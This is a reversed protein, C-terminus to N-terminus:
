SRRGPPVYGAVRRRGPRWAMRPDPYGAASRKVPVPPGNPAPKPLTPPTRGYPVHLSGIATPRDLLATAVLAVAIAQDDNQGAHHDLRVLGPGTEVLRVTVLEAALEPDDPLVIARDRLAGYLTRALRNISGTNFLYEDARVGAVRLRESLQAAQYPDFVLRPSGYQKWTAVISREVDTLSVPSTRTGTWRLVRDIVVKRGAPSPELHGVTLVTRDRKLGVDLGMVYRRGRLPELVRHSGTCAAVDAESTLADEGACWQNLILRRYESATLSEAAAEVDEPAWWPSPGAVVSARWHRSREATLFRKHGASAPTAATGLVLLRSAPVKGVASVAASWLRAHNPTDPWATAEDLVTLWPRRGFASAGDSSEVTLTAGTSRVTITSAGVDVLATLRSRQILGVLADFLVAAQDADAGYCYSRSRAPALTLLMALIVVAADTTKSMGRARLWWHRRVAGEIFAQADALQWPEAANWWLRGDELLLTGLLVIAPNM